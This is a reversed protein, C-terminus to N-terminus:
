EPNQPQIVLFLINMKFNVGFYCKMGWHDEWELKRGQAMPGGVTM